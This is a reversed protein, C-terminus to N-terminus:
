PGAEWVVASLPQITRGEYVTETDRYNIVIRLGNEYLNVAVGDEPVERGIWGSGQVRGLIDNMRKYIDVLIDEFQSFETSFFGSSCTQSLLYSPRDTLLFAPYVNYDIMRLVDADSFFSFNAYPAYLEMCGNLVMQLFPVTDTEIIYRSTFVPTDLFRSVYPWLYANPRVANVLREGSLAAFAERILNLNDSVSVDAGGRVFESSLTYGLGDVGVSPMDPTRLGMAKLARVAPEARLLYTQTIPKVTDTQLFATVYQGSLHKVAADMPARAKNMVAYNDTLSVDTGMAAYRAILGHFADEAGIAPVFRPNQIDSATIGGDSFGLLGANVRVGQALIASLIRDAGDLDTMVVNSLGFLNKEADCMVIDARLPIDAQASRPTLAGTEILRDRYARAMGTYDARYGGDAGNGALFEYCISLDFRNPEDLPAYYGDGKRNYAQYYLKNYVFRPYVRDYYTINHDPVHIIQMYECGSQAYAVFANYGEGHCVGFVPMLPELPPISGTENSFYQEAQTRDEGFVSGQYRTLPVSKEGFRILAGCGDPVLSYGPRCANRVARDFRGSDANYYLREGGSAGLYQAIILAALRAKGTGTIDEDRVALRIGRDSFAITMEVTIDMQPVSMTYLYASGDRSMRRLRTDAQASASAYVTINDAEDLIELQLLSRAQDIFVANMRNEKYLDSLAREADTLGEAQADTEAPLPIDAGTTWRYPEPGRADVVAIIDRDERYYYSLGGAEYLKEYAQTDVASPSTVPVPARTDRATPQYGSARATVPTLFAQLSLLLAAIHKDARLM